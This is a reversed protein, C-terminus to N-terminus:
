SQVGREADRCQPGARGSPGQLIPIARARPLPAAFALPLHVSARSCRLPAPIATVASPALTRRLPRAPPRVARTSVCQRRSPTWRAWSGSCTAWSARFRGSAATPSSFTARSSRSSAARTGPWTPSSGSSAPWRPTASQACTWCSCCRRPRRRRRTALPLPRRRRAGPRARTAPRRRRERRRSLWTRQRRGRLRPPRAALSRRGRRRPRRRGAPRSCLRWRSPAAEARTRRQAPRRAGSGACGSRSWSASPSRCGECAPRSKGTEESREQRAPCGARGGSRPAPAPIRRPRSCATRLPLPEERM